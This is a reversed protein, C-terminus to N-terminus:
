GRSAELCSCGQRGVVASHSTGPPIELRDGPSLDFSAGTAGAVFRISGRVCYLVKHYTHSHTSYRDGPGNSWGHPALGEDRMLREIAIDSPPESHPWRMLSPGSM